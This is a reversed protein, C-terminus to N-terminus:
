GRKLATVAQHFLKATLQKTFLEIQTTQESDLHLDRLLRSLEQEAILLSQTQLDGIVPALKREQLQIEYSTMEEEIIQEALSVKMQREEINSAVIQSLDDINYLYVNDLSAVEPDINRPVAIDILFLPRYRRIRMIKKLSIPEILFHQASTSAVVLDAQELMTELNSLRNATEIVAEKQRFHAVALSGMEGQGLLLCRLNKLNGFVKQALQVAAYAITVANKGLETETRVRKATLFAQSFAQTLRPGVAGQEKAHSYATKVQGLIQPEGIILSDLSSTVRMLQLLANQGQHFYLHPRLLKNPIRHYEHLFTELAIGGHEPHGQAYIETRNCTSLIAAEEIYEELVARELADTLKDQSFVVKERLEVPTQHHNLGICIFDSLM